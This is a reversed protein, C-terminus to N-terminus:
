VRVDDTKCKRKTVDTRRASPLNQEHHIAGASRVIYFLMWVPILIWVIQISVGSCPSVEITDYVASDLTIVVVRYTEIVLIWVTYLKVLKLGLCVIRDM